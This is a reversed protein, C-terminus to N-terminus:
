KVVKIAKFSPNGHEALPDSTEQKVNMERERERACLCGHMSSTEGARQLQLGSSRQALWFIKDSNIHKNPRSTSPDGRHLQLLRM